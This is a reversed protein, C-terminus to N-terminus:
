QQTVFAPTRLWSNELSVTSIARQELPHSPHKLSLPALVALYMVLYSLTLLSVASAWPAEDPICVYSMALMSLHICLILISHYSVSHNPVLNSLTWPFGSHPTLLTSVQLHLLIWCLPSSPTSNWASSTCFSQSSFISCLLIHFSM